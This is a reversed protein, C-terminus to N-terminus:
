RGARHGTMEFPPTKLPGLQHGTMTIAHQQLTLTALSYGTMTIESTQLIPLTVRHGTMGISPAKLTLHELSYGTMVIAPMALTLPRSHGVMQMAPIELVREYVTEARVEGASSILSTSLVAITWFLRILM